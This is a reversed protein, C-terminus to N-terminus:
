KKQNGWVEKLRQDRGCSYRYYKYRVPNKLYYEQHYDEASYFTVQPLVPTVATSKLIKTQIMESKVREFIKVQEPTAYVASTYSFGKDCFQGEADYPDVNQWFVSLLKEYSIKQPDFVVEIVERHGSQGGTVDKYTPNKVHGGSYGVTTTIVGEKKLADYPPQICWFCGAAFIAKETKTVQNVASAASAFLVEFESYGFEKLKNKSIFKLAASNMCYRKGTPPPGDDFVHGLHSDAYRSRIETRVSFLRRDEKEIINEKVLPRSFSPWGTGSDYKDKSSFLPEGSVIDVYIGEDKLDHYENNFPAETGEHQTVKYQLATLKNKLEADSPKKFDKPSWAWSMSVVFFLALATINKKM